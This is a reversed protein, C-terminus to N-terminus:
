LHAKVYKRAKQRYKYEQIWSANKMAWDFHDKIFQQLAPTQQGNADALGLKQTVVLILASDKTIGAAQFLKHKEDESYNSTTTTTTTISSTQTQSRVPSVEIQIGRCPQIESRLVFARTTGPAAIKIKHYTPCPKGVHGAGGSNYYLSFWATKGPEITVLQPPGQQSDGPVEEKDVARRVVRGQSNLVEFRPYGKLTCPASSNNTLTFPTSRVGGMAADTEGEKVSLSERLCQTTARSKHNQGSNNVNTQGLALSSAVAILTLLLITRRM